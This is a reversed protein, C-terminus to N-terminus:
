KKIENLSKKLWGLPVKAHRDFYSSLTNRIFGLVDEMQGSIIDYLSLVEKRLDKVEKYFYLKDLLEALMVQTVRIYQEKDKIKTRELVDKIIRFRVRENEESSQKLVTEKFEVFDTFSDMGSPNLTETVLKDWNQLNYSM